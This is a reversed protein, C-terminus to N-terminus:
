SSMFGEPDQFLGCTSVHGRYRCKGSKGAKGTEVYSEEGFGQIIESDFYFVFVSYVCQAWGKCKFAVVSYSWSLLVLRIGKGFSKCVLLVCQFM